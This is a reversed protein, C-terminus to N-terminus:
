SQCLLHCGIRFLLRVDDLAGELDWANEGDLEVVDRCTHYQTNIWDKSKKLMWSKGNKTHELGYNIFLGPVGRQIFRFHDSRYFMGDENEIESIHRNQDKLAIDQALKRILTQGTGHFSIDNTKGFINLMDMNLIAATKDLAFGADYKRNGAVQCYFEAGLLGKEESTSAFFLVNRRGMEKEEATELEAARKHAKALAVLASVSLANDRAGALIETHESTTKQGDPLESVKTVNRKGFHDWHGSYIVVENVLHGSGPLLALFNSSEFERLNSNITFSEIDVNKNLSIRKFDKNLSSNIATEIDKFGLEKLLLEAADKTFWGKVNCEREGNKLRLQQGKKGSLVVSWPYGASGETHILFVADANQRAAEEYKYTWRGYYTMSKGDFLCPDYHGPDNVFMLVTKGTVDLGKYDNWDREPANIGFGVFVVSSSKLTHSEVGAGVIFDKSEIFTHHSKNASIILDSRFVPSAEVLKVRQFYSGGELPGEAGLSTFENELYKLTKQEGVTGPFRGEFEPSSLIITHKFLEDTTIKAEAQQLIEQKITM